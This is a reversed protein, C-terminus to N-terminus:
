IEWMLLWYKNAKPEIFAKRRFFLYFHKLVLCNFDKNEDELKIKVQNSENKVKNKDETIERLWQSPIAETIKRLETKIRETEYDENVKRIEDIFGQFPLLGPRIEYFLDRIKRFGANFWTKMLVRGEIKFNKNLFLPQNLLAERGVPIFKLVNGFEVWAKLVERYFDPIGVIMKEEWKMWLASSGLGFSKDLVFEMTKKWDIEEDEFFRKVTKVRLAKLRLIPDLLGLGGEEVSGILTEYRIKAPRGNWIFDTVIRKFHKATPLPLSVSGLVYWIKSLFLANLVLIKGRLTLCRMKWFTLRKWANGLVEEWTEKTTLRENTGVRVGLIKMIEVEKFPLTRPLTGTEGIKMIEMKDINMQAGSGKCYTEVIRIGKLISNENKVVLTTDDAYQYVKMDTSFHKFDKVKISQIDSNANIALVLPEAVLSYLLASLPCGQRISRTLHFFNTVYGNVKVCSRADSYLSRLCGIFNEGFDFAELTDFLFDHEVRDFAKEFDINLVFGKQKEKALFWIKDRISNIVDSIDRNLVAYAQSTHIITPLVMKLRNAMVKALIKYDCNLLSIPRYNKLETKAGKKKYIIKIMGETMSSSLGGGRWVEEYIIKLVPILVTKFAKYFECPLGDLGPSRGNKMGGVAKEIEVASIDNNCMLKDEERVKKKIQSVLFKNAEKDVGQKSFLKRYFRFVDKLIDGTNKVEEGNEKKLCGIEGAKQRSRELNFFFKNCREGEVMYNARSRIM